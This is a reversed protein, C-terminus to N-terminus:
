YLEWLISKSLYHTPIEIDWNNANIWDRIIRRNKSIVTKKLITKRKMNTYNLKLVEYNYIKKNYFYANCKNHINDNLKNIYNQDNPSIYFHSKIAIDFKDKKIHRYKNNKIRCDKSYFYKGLYSKWIGQM